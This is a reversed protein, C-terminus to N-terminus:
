TQSYNRFLLKVPYVKAFQWKSFKRSVFKRSFPWFERFERFNRERFNRRNFHQVFTKKRLGYKVHVSIKHLSNDASSLRDQYYIVSENHLIHMFILMFIWYKAQRTNRACRIVNGRIFQWVNSRKTLEWNIISHLALPISHNYKKTKQMYYPVLIPTWCLMLKPRLFINNTKNSNFLSVVFIIPKNANM